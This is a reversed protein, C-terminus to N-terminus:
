PKCVGCADYGKKTATTRSLVQAGDVGRVYRCDARHFRGRDPIVVVSVARTARAQATRPAGGQLAPTPSFGSGPTQAPTDAAMGAAPAPEAPAPEAPAPEAPAPEVPAPEAPAAPSPQAPTPEAPAVEAPAAPAPEASSPEAPSPEAPSPEAPSPEAPAVEAPAAPAQSAPAIRASATRAPAKRAPAKRPPAGIVPAVTAPAVIAAAETVPPQAAPPQAAPAQAAPAEVAPGSAPDTSATLDADSPLDPDDAPAAATAGGEVAPVTRTGARAAPGSPSQAAAARAGARPRAPRVPLPEDVQQDQTPGGDATQGGSLATLAADPRCVGCPTFGEERADLVDLQESLKGALYRCGEVHYRPRGAVVLVTGGYETQEDDTDHTETDGTDGSGDTDGTDDSAAAVPPVPVVATADAPDQGRTAPAATTDSAAADTEPLTEGRRQFIGVALFVLSVLSVGISAYVFSIEGAVIGIVLLVLAVLVLAGSIVIM